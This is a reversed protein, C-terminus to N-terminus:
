PLLNPSHRTRYGSLAVVEPGATVTVTILLAAGAAIGNLASGSVAVVATYPAAGTSAVNVTTSLGNYDSVNDFTSRTEGVEPGIAEVTSAATCGSPAVLASMATAARSDDPDCWTLPKQMVEELLAEAIALAQKRLLPDSSHAVTQNMALLIGALGVSVIMIFIILEILTFGRARRRDISM